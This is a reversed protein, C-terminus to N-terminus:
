SIGISNYKPRLSYNPDFDILFMNLITLNNIELKIQQIQVFKIM